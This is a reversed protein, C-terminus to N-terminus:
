ILRWCFGFQLNFTGRLFITFYFVLVSFGFIYITIIFIRASITPTMRANFASIFLAIAAIIKIIGPIVNNEGLIEYVQASLLCFSLIVLPSLWKLNRILYWDEKSNKM